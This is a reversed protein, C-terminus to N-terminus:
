EAEGKQSDDGVTSIFVDSLLDLSVVTLLRSIWCICLFKLHSLM